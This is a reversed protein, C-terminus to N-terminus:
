YFQEDNGDVKLRTQSHIPDVTLQIHILDCCDSCEEQYDQDGNSTDVGLQTTHGCHPCRVIANTLDEEHM